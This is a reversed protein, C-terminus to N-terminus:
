RVPQERFWAMKSCPHAVLVLHKPLEAGTLVPGAHNQCIGREHRRMVVLHRRQHAIQIAECVIGADHHRRKDLDRDGVVLELCDM